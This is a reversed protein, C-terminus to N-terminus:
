HPDLQGARGAFRARQTDGEHRHNRRVAAAKLRLSTAIDRVEYPQEAYATLSDAMVDLWADIGRLAVNEVDDAQRRM